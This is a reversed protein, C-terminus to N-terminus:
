DDDFKLKTSMDMRLGKAELKMAWEKNGKTRAYYFDEM